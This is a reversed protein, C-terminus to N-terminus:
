RAKGRMWANMDVTAPESAPLAGPSLAEVPQRRTLAPGTGGARTSANSGAWQKILEELKTDFDEAPLDDVAEVFRRSDLLKEPDAGLRAATRWVHLELQAIAASEQHQQALAVPDETAQDIGLAQRIGTLQGNLSDYQGAREKLQDYDAFRSRERNLREGVIRDLDAQTFTQGGSNTDTTPPAEPQTV